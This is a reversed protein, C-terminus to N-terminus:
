ISVTREMVRISLRSHRWLASEAEAWAVIPGVSFWHSQVAVGSSAPAPDRAVISYTHVPRVSSSANSVMAPMSHTSVFFSILLLFLVIVRM